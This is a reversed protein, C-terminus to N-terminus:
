HYGVKLDTLMIVDQPKLYRPIDALSEYSFCDYKDFLNIYEADLILRKKNTMDIAVGLGSIVTIPQPSTWKKIAGTRLLDQITGDVFDLHMSVSIKNKFHVQQPEKGQLKHAVNHAGM